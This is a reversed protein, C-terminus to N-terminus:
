KGHSKEIQRSVKVKAALNKKKGHPKEKQRSTKRKATLNKKKDHPKEKQRSDKEKQRSTIEKATLRKRKGHPKGKRRSTIEKATVTTPWRVIWIVGFSRVRFAQEFASSKTYWVVNSKYVRCLRTRKFM